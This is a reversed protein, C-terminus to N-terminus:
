VSDQHEQPLLQHAFYLVKAIRTYYDNTWPDNTLLNLTKPLVNLHSTNTLSTSEASVALVSLKRPLAAVSAENWSAQAITLFFDLSDFVSKTNRGDSLAMNTGLGEDILELKEELDPVFIRLSRLCSPLMRIEKETPVQLLGRLHLEKLNSPIFEFVSKALGTRASQIILTSLASLSQMPQMIRRSLEELNVTHHASFDIQLTITKLSPHFSQPYQPLSIGKFKNELCSLLMKNFEFHASGFTFVLRELNKVRRRLVLWFEATGRYILLKKLGVPLAMATDYDLPGSDSRIHLSTLSSPMAPHQVEVNSTTTNVIDNISSTSPSCTSSTVESLPLLSQINASESADYESYRRRLCECELDTLNPPLWELKGVYGCSLSKLTTLKEMGACSLDDISLEELSSLQLLLNLSINVGLLVRLSRYFPIESITTSDSIYWERCVVISQITTPLKSLAPHGGDTTPLFNCFQLKPFLLSFDESFIDQVNLYSITLIYLLVLNRPLLKFPMYGKEFSLSCEDLSQPWFDNSEGTFRGTAHIRSLNLRKLNLPWSVTDQNQISILGDLVLSELTSPLKIQSIRRQTINKYQVESISLELLNPFVSELSHHFLLADIAHTFEIKLSTVTPLRVDLQMPWKAYRLKRNSKIVLEKLNAFRVAASLWMDLDIFGFDVAANLSRTTRAIRASLASNGCGILMLIDFGTLYSLITTWVDDALRTIPFIFHHDM